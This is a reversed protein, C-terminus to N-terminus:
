RTRLLGGAYAAPAMLALAAIQSWMSGSRFQVILSVLAVIAIIAALIAAHRRPQQPALSAAVYGGLGAFFMGYLVAGVGFLLSPSAHPDHDTVNFLVAASAGFILYGVVIAVVSGIM